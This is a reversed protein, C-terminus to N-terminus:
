PQRWSGAANESSLFWRPTRSDMRDAWMWLPMERDWRRIHAHPARCRGRPGPGLQWAGEGAGQVKQYLWLRFTLLGLHFPPPHTCVPGHRHTSLRDAEKSNKLSFLRM